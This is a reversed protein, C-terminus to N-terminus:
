NYSVPSKDRSYFLHSGLDAVLYKDDKWSPSVQKTHYFLAGKSYDIVQKKYVLKSIKVAKKWAPKDKPLGAEKIKFGISRKGKRKVILKDTTWSFQSKEVVVSCVDKPYRNSYVRNMTVQAVAIQGVTSQDRSEHYVNLALCMLATSAIM